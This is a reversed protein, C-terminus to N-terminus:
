LPERWYVETETVGFLQSDLDLIYDRVADTERDLRAMLSARAELPEGGEDRWRELDDRIKTMDGYSTM